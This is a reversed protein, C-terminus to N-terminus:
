WFYRGHGDVEEVLSRIPRRRYYYPQLIAHIPLVSLLSYGVILMVGAFLGDGWGIVGALLAVVM